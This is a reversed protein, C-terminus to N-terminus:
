WRQRQHVSAIFRWGFHDRIVNIGGHYILGFALILIFSVYIVCIVLQHTFVFNPSLLIVTNERSSGLLSRNLIRWSAIILQEFIMWCLLQTDYDLRIVATALCLLRPFIFQWNNINTLVCFICIYDEALICFPLEMLGLMIVFRTSTIILNYEFALGHWIQSGLKPRRLLHKFADHLAFVIFGLFLRHQLDNRWFCTLSFPQQWQFKFLIRDKISCRRVSSQRWFYFDSFAILVILLFDFTNHCSTKRQNLNIDFASTFCDRDGLSLRRWRLSWLFTIRTGLSSINSRQMFSLAVLHRWNVPIM